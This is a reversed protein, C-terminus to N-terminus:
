NTSYGLRRANWCVELDVRRKARHADWHEPYDDM